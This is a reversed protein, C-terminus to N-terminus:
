GLTHSWAVGFKGLPNYDAECKWFSRRTVLKESESATLDVAIDFYPGLNHLRQPNLRPCTPRDTEATM